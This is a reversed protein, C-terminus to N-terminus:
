ARAAIHNAKARARRQAHAVNRIVRKAQAVVRNRLRARRRSEALFIATGVGAVALIGATIGLVGIWGLSRRREFM